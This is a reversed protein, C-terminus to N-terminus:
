ADGPAHSQTTGGEASPMTPQVPDLVQEVIEDERGRVVRQGKRLGQTETVVTFRGEPELAKHFYIVVWDRTRGLAHALRTNSYLATFHWAGRRAHLIPLWAEGARNFRKPAILKLEGKAARDRYMRDVQLLLSTSPRNALLPAPARVPRGLREALSAALMARRRPGLGEVDLSGLHLEAELDELTEIQGDRCLRGALQAGIGPLTRFLPGPTLEGRLRGLQHWRGSAVMEAIADAIGPGITPLAILGERGERALIADVPEPLSAITAAAKRYARPRFPGDGQQELLGAFDQLKSATWQNLATGPLRKPM